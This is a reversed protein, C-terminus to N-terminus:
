PKEVAPHWRYDTDDEPHDRHVRISHVKARQFQRDCASTVQGVTSSAGKCPELMAM